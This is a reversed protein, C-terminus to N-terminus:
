SGFITTGIRVMTSGEEVAIDYDSSMGMSIESFFPNGDFFRSRLDMFLYRLMRFEKRIQERDSTFTAMGMIGALSVHRLAKWEGSILMAEAEGPSLGSKTEEEAIHFQLLCPIVRNYRAAEADIARLLKLSDVSHIMSVFPAIYKVKNTQLHGIFHWETDPPLLERKAAMERAKNEGFARQGAARAELIDAAPRNKSVAVLKVGAPLRSRVALLQDAITM